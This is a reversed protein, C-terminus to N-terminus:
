YSCFESVVKEDPLFWDFFAPKNLGLTMRGGKSLYGLHQVQRVGRGSPVALRKSHHTQNPSQQRLRYCTYLTRIWVVRYAEAERISEATPGRPSYERFSEFLIEKYM